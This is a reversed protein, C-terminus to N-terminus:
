GARGSTTTEGEGLDGLDLGLLYCSSRQTFACLDGVVELSISCGRAGM